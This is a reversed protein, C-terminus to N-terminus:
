EDSSKDLPFLPHSNLLPNSKQGGHNGGRPNATAAGELRSMAGLITQNIKEVEPLVGPLDGLVYEATQSLFAEKTRNAAELAGVTAELAPRAAQLMGRLQASRNSGDLAALRDLLDVDVKELTVTIRTVGDDGIKMGM